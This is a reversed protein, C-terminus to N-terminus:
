HQAARQEPPNLDRQREFSSRWIRFRPYFRAPQLLRFTHLLTFPCSPSLQISGLSVQLWRKGYELPCPKWLNIWGLISGLPRSSFCRATILPSVRSSGTPWRHALDLRCEKSSPTRM